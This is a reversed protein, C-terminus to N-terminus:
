SIVYSEIKVRSRGLIFIAYFIVLVISFLSIIPSYVRYQKPGKIREILLLGAIIMTLFSLMVVGCQYNKNKLMSKRCPCRNQFRHIKTVYFKSSCLPCLMTSGGSKRRSGQKRKLKENLFKILCEGHSFSCCSCPLILNQLRDEKGCFRCPYKEVEGSLM